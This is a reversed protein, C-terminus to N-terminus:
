RPWAMSRCVCPWRSRLGGLFQRPRDIGAEIVRGRVVVQSQEVAFQAVPFARLCRIADSPWGSSASPALRASPRMARVFPSRGSAERKRSCANLLASLRDTASLWDDCSRRVTHCWGPRASRRHCRPRQGLDDLVRQGEQAARFPQLRSRWARWRSVPWRGPPVDTSGM